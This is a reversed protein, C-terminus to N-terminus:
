QQMLKELVTYSDLLNKYYFEHRKLFSKIDSKTSVAEKHLVKIEPYYVIKIDERLCIYQLISEEGYLFTKDYLGDFRDIYKKSFIMCCGHIACDTQECVRNKTDKKVKSMIRNWICYIYEFGTKCYYLRKKVRRIENNLDAKTEPCNNVPNCHVGMLNIVDPGLVGFQYKEYANYIADDAYDTQIEVDSNMMVIFDCHLRNKAYLFGLNNGRAFGRNEESCIVTINSINRYRDEIIEDSGNKSGNCVIIIHRGTTNNLRLGLLKEVCSITELYNKYHLIVFGIDLKQKM